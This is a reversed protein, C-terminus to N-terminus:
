YLQQISTYYDVQHGDEGGSQSSQAALLHRINLAAGRAEDQLRSMAIFSDRVLSVQECRASNYSFGSLMISLSLLQDCLGHMKHDWICSIDLLPLDVFVFLLNTIISM